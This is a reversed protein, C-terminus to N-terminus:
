QSVYAAIEDGVLNLFPLVAGLRFQGGLQCLLCLTVVLPPCCQICQQGFKLSWLHHLGDQALCVPVPKGLRQLRAYLLHAAPQFDVILTDPHHAVPVEDAVCGVANHLRAVVSRSGVQAAHLREGDLRGDELRRWFGSLYVGAFQEPGVEVADDDVRAREVQRAHIPAHQAVLLVCPQFQRRDVRRQVRHAAHALTCTAVSHLRRRALLHTIRFPRALRKGLLALGGEGEGGLLGVSGQQAIRAAALRGEGVEEGKAQGALQQAQVVGVQISQAFFPRFLFRACQQRHADHQAIQRYSQVLQRM